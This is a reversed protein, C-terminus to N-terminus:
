SGHQSMTVFCFHWILYHSVNGIVSAGMDGNIWKGMEGDEWVGISWNVLVPNGSASKISPIPMRHFTRSM